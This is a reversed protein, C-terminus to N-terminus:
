NTLHLLHEKKTNQLVYTRCQRLFNVNAIEDGSSNKDLYVIVIFSCFFLYLQCRNRKTAFTEEKFGYCPIKNVFEATNQTFIRALTSYKNILVIDPKWVRDASIRLVVEFNGYHKPDWKLQYDEWM